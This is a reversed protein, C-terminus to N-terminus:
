INRSNEYTLLKIAPWLARNGFRLAALLSSTEMESLDKMKDTLTPRAMASHFAAERALIHKSLM